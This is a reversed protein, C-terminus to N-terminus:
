PKGDALGCAVQALLTWQRAIDDASLQEYPTPQRTGTWLRAATVYENCQAVLGRTELADHRPPLPHAKEWFALTTCAVLLVVIAIVL